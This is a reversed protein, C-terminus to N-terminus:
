TNDIRVVFRQKKYTLRKKKKLVNSSVRSRSKYRFVQVADTLVANQLMFFVYMTTFSFM